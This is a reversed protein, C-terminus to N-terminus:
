KRGVLANPLVLGAKTMGSTGGLRPGVRVIGIGDVTSGAEVVTSGAVDGLTLRGAGSVGTKLAVSAYGQTNFINIEGTAGSIQVGEEDAGRPLTMYAGGEPFGISAADSVRASGDFVSVRGGNLNTMAGLIAAVNGSRNYAYVGGGATSGWELIRVIPRGQRDVVEFPAQVRTVPGTGTATTPLTETSGSGPKTPKGDAPPLFVRLKELEAVRKELQQLRTLLADRDAPTQARAALTAVCIMGAGLMITAHRGIM